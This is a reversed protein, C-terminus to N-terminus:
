EKEGGRSCGLQLHFAKLDTGPGTRGKVETIQIGVEAQVPWVDGTAKRCAVVEVVPKGGPDTKIVAADLGVIRVTVVGELLVPVQVELVINEVTRCLELEVEQGVKMAMLLVEERGVGEGPDGYKGVAGLRPRVIALQDFKAIEAGFPLHTTILVEGDAAGNSVAKAELPVQAVLDAHVDVDAHAVGAGIVEVVDTGGVGVLGVEDTLAALESVVEGVAAENQISFTVADIALSLLPSILRQHILVDKGTNAKVIVKTIHTARIIPM